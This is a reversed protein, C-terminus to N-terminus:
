WIFYVIFQLFQEYQEENVKGNTKELIHKKLETIPKISSFFSQLIVFLIPSEYSVQFSTIPQGVWCAENMYYAYLKEKETLQNFSDKFNLSLINAKKVSM